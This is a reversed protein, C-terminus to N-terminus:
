RPNGKRKLMRRVRETEDQAFGYCSEWSEVSEAYAIVEVAFALQSLIALFGLLLFM